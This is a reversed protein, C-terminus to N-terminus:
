SRAGPPSTKPAFSLTSGVSRPQRDASRADDITQIPPHAPTIGALVAPASVDSRKGPAEAEAETGAAREAHPTVPGATEELGTQAGVLNTRAGPASSFRAVALIGVAVLALAVIRHSRGAITM